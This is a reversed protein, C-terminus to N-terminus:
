VDRIVTAEAASMARLAAMARDARAQLVYGLVGNLLVISFIVLNPKEPVLDEGCHECRGTAGTDLQCNPCPTPKM